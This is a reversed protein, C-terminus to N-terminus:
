SVQPIEKAEKLHNQYPGDHVMFGRGDSLAVDDMPNKMKMSDASFNGDTVINRYFLFRSYLFHITPM